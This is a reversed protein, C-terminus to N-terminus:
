LKIIKETRVFEKTWITVFYVGKSFSSLDIQHTTGEMEGKYILQGNLSTIEISHLGQQESEITLISNTPNPYIWINEHFHPNLRTSNVIVLTDPYSINFLSYKM